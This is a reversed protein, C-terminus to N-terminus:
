QVVRHFVTVRRTPYQQDAVVSHHDIAFSEAIPRGVGFRLDHSWVRDEIQRRQGFHYRRRGAHHTQLLESLDLQVIRHCLINGVERLIALLVHGNPHQQRVVRSQRSVKVQLLRPIPQLFSIAADIRHGQLARRARGEEIAVDAEDHQSLQHLLDAAHRQVLIGLGVDETRQAHGRRPKIRRLGPYRTDSGRLPVLVGPLHHPSGYVIGGRM